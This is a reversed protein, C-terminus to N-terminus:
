KVKTEKIIKSWQEIFEDKYQEIARELIAYKREYALELMPGYDVTHSMSVVLKTVNEWDADAFLGRRANTTRDTWPANTKAWNEMKIAVQKTIILLGAQLKKTYDEINAIVTNISNPDIVIGNEESM